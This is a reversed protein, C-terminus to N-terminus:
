LTQVFYYKEKGAGGSSSGQVTFLVKKKELENLINSRLSDAKIQRGKESIQLALQKATMPVGAALIKRVCQKQIANLGETKPKFSYDNDFLYEIVKEKEIEKGAATPGYTSLLSSLLNFVRKIVGRNALTLMNITTHDFPHVVPASKDVRHYDLRRDIIKNIVESHLGTKKDLFPELDVTSDLYNLMESTFADSNGVVIVHVKQNQIILKTSRILGVSDEKQWKDAEDLGVVVTLGAECIKQTIEQFAQIARVGNLPKKSETVEKKFGFTTGLKLLLSIGINYDQQSGTKVEVSYYLDKFVAFIDTKINKDLNYYDSQIQEVLTSTYWILLDDENVPRSMDIKLPIIQNSKLSYLMKKLATTKGVGPQGRIGFKKSQSNISISCILPEIETRDEFLTEIQQDEIETTGFPDEKLNYKTLWSM